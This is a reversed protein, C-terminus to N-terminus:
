DWRSKLPHALKLAWVPSGLVDNGSDEATYESTLRGTELATIPQPFEGVSWVPAQFLISPIARLHLVVPFGELGQGFHKIM